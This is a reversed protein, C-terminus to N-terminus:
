GLAEHDVSRGRVSTKRDELLSKLRILDVHMTRRPDAALLVALGHGLAGGPPNYSMQLHVRTGEPTEDFRVTGAHAVPSGEVTKWAIQENAIRRSEVTDFYVPLGLPGAVCWHAREGDSRRVERVNAMFAPFNEYRSWVDYVEELPAAVHLTKQVVVAHRGAGLGFLRRLEVNTAARALLVLGSGGVTTGILGTRRSGWAALWAGTAGAVLRATPSWQEQWLEFRRRTRRANREGQLGPVREASDHPVLQNEVDRVGRVGAARHVADDMEDALIPGSLIICGADATVSVAHPHSVVGGLEARVREVLVDDSVEESTLRSRISALVGRSRNMVDRSTAEAADGAAHAASVAKDRILARRRRGHAPDLVQSVTAGLVFSGILVLVNAV